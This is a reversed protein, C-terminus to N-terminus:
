SRGTACEGRHERAAAPQVGGRRLDMGVPVLAIAVAFVGVSAGIDVFVDPGSVPALAAAHGDWTRMYEGISEVINDEVMVSRKFIRLSM